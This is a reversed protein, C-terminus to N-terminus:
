KFEIARVVGITGLEGDIKPDYRILVKKPKQPGCAFDVAGVGATGISIIFALVAALRKM